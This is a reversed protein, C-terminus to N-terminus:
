KPRAPWLRPQGPTFRVVIKDGAQELEANAADLTLGDMRIEVRSGHVRVAAVAALSRM